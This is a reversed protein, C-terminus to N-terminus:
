FHLNRQVAHSNRTFLIHIVKKAKVYRLFKVIFFQINEKKTILKYYNISYRTHKCVLM